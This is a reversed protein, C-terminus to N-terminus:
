CFGEVVFWVPSDGNLEWDFGDDMLREGNGDGDAMRVGRAEEVENSGLAGCRGGQFLECFGDISGVKGANLIGGMDVSAMVSSEWDSFSSGCSEENGNITIYSSSQFILPSSYPSEIFKVKTNTCSTTVGDPDTDLFKMLENVTDDDMSLWAVIDDGLDGSSDSVAPTLLKEVATNDGDSGDRKRTEEM